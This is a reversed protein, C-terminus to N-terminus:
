LKKLFKNLDEHFENIEISLDIVIKDGFTKTGIEVRTEGNTEIIFNQHSHIGYHKWYNAIKRINKKSFFKKIKSKEIIGNLLFEELAYILQSYTFLNYRLKLKNKKVSKKYLNKNYLLNYKEIQKKSFTLLELYENLNIKNM